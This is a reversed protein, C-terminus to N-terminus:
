NRSESVRQSKEGRVAEVHPQCFGGVGRVRLAPSARTVSVRPVRLLRPQRGGRSLLGCETCLKAPVTRTVRRVVGAGSPRRGRRVSSASRSSPPAWRPSPAAPGRSSEKSLGPGRLSECGRRGSCVRPLARRRGASGSPKHGPLRRAPPAWPGNGEGAESAAAEGGDQEEAGARRGQQRQARRRRGGPLCGWVPSLLVLVSGMVTRRAAAGCVRGLGLVAGRARPFAGRPKALKLARQRLQNNVTTRDGFTM